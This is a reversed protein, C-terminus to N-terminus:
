SNKVPGQGMPNLRQAIAFAKSLDAAEMGDFLARDTDAFVREGTEEKFARFLLANVYKHHHFKVVPPAKPDSPDVVIESVEAMVDSSEGVSIKGVYWRCKIEGNESITSGNEDLHPWEPIDIPEPGRPKSRQASQKLSM